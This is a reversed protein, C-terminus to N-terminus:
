KLFIEYFAKDYIAKLSECQINEPIEWYTGGKNIFDCMRNFTENYLVQKEEPTQIDIGYALFAMCREYVKQEDENLEPIEEEKVQKCILSEAPCFGWEKIARQQLLYTINNRLIADPIKGLINEIFRWRHAMDYTIM